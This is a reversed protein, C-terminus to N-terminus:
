KGKKAASTKRAVKRAVTAKKAAAKRV